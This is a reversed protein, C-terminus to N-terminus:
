SAVGCVPKRVGALRAVIQATANRGDLDLTTAAMGTHSTKTPSTADRLMARVGAGLSQGGLLDPDLCHLAGASALRQGRRRQEDERGEAYPVVLAPTRSRLIDMTTNYGCQSVTAQSRVMEAYLDDVVRIVELYPSNEASRVLWEWVSEPAFPGAVIMTTLGDDAWMRHADVAARFLPEGVMGGGASVLVRNCRSGPAISTAAPDENTVFGTYHVPIQLPTAPLFSEELTAFNPDSHMVIADFFENSLLSAREDHRTQDRRQSVLIDRLSCVVVPRDKGMAKANELLPMLEFAFKKRGFPFLEVLLARPGRALYSQIIEQRKTKADEVTFAPDHSVLEYTDDHGLPPLNVIQVGEPAKTGAPLRGGNLLIVDFFEALGEALALSRVLHGLGLSHQCYFLLEPRPVRIPRVTM